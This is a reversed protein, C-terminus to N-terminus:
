HRADRLVAAAAYVRVAGTAIIAGLRQVKERTRALDSHDSM